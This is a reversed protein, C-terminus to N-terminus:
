KTFRPPDNPNNREIWGKGDAAIGELLRFTHAFGAVDLNINSLEQANEGASLMHADADKVRINRAPGNSLILELDYGVSERETVQVSSISDFGYNIRQASTRTSKTFDLEVNVDRVGGRTVLFLRVDYRSYRWPGGVERARKYPRAPTLLIAHTIIDRWALQYTRLMEDVFVTKDCGLWTEMERETPRTADLLTKWRHYEAERASLLRGREQEEDAVRLKESYIHLWSYAARRGGWGSGFIALLSILFNTPAGIAMVVMVIAAFGLVVFASVCIMKTQVPTRYQQRYAFLTGNNHSNRVDQALYRILWNVRDANIRSERYLFAIEAVLSNRIGATYHFWQQSDWGTPVRTSFYHNFSHHVRNTFGDGGPPPNNAYWSYHRDKKQLRHELHWWQRGYHAAAFGAAVVVLLDAIAGAPNEVAASIWLFGTSALFLIVWGALVNQAAGATNAETPLVRPGIPAPEFYAWVRQARDNGCRSKEAHERSRAWLSDKMGGTLMLDLHRVILEHQTPSLDRLRKLVREAEGDGESLSELLDFIVQLATRWEGDAYSSVIKSVQRLQEIEHASLDYYARKSLVSLVWHFRVEAGDYGKAIAEAILERASSPVGNKLFERGVKYKEEPSADPPLMYVNSNHVSEAQIGVNSGNAYNFTFGTGDNM